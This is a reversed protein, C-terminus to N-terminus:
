MGLLELGLRVTLHEQQETLYQAYARITPTEFECPLRFLQKEDLYPQAISIPLFGFGTGQLLMTLMITSHDTHLAPVYGNGVVGAFWDPFPYGWEIHLYSPSFFDAKDVAATREVASVLIIEDEFLLQQTVKPHAPPDFRVSVHVVGDQLLDRVMYGADINSLFKVAIEPHAERFALIHPLYRYHWVSGPGSLVLQHEFQESLTLKSEEYLRMMREAYPLFAIGAQTLSVNRNDRLFLTKGVAAELGKIRATVASQSIHLHEAAKTFNQIQCIALFAELQSSDM